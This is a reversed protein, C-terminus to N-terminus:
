NQFFIPFINSFKTQTKCSFNQDIIKKQGQTFLIPFFPHIPKSIQIKWKKIQIENWGIHPLPLSKSEILKVKGEIWGLGKTKTFEFGVESMIQMGVCIGLFPTKKITFILVNGKCRLFLPSGSKSFSFIYKSPNPTAIM